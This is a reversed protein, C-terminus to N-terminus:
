FENKYEEETTGNNESRRKILYALGGIGTLSSVVGMGPGLADDDAGTTGSEAQDDEDDDGNTDPVDADDEQTDDGNADDEDEGNTDDEGNEDDDGNTDTDGADDGNEDDTDDDETESDKEDVDVDDVDEEVTATAAALPITAYPDDWFVVKLTIDSDTTFPVIAEDPNITVADAGEDGPELSKVLVGWESTDESYARITLFRDTEIGDSVSYELPLESNLAEPNELYSVHAPSNPLVSITATDLSDGDESGLRVTVEQGQSLSAESELTIPREEMTGPTIDRTDGVTEGDVEVTIVGDAEITEPYLYEISVEETDAEPYQNFRVGSIVTQTTAVFDDLHGWDSPYARLEVTDGLGPTDAPLFTGPPVPYEESLREGPSVDDFGQRGSEIDWTDDIGWRGSGTDPFLRISIDQDFSEDVACEIAVTESNVTPPSGFDIEVDDTTVELMEDTSPPTAEDGVTVRDFIITDFDRRSTSGQLVLEDGQQFPVGEKQEDIEFTTTRSANTDLRELSIRRQWYLAGNDTLLELSVWENATEYSVEITKDGPEPTAEFAAATTVETEDTFLAASLSSEGQPFVGVEISDGVEVPSSLPIDIENIMGTVVKTPDESSETGDVFVRVDLVDSDAEEEPIFVSVSLIESGGTYGESFIIYPIGIQKKNFSVVDRVVDVSSNDHGLGDYVEFRAAAEKDAYVSESYVMRERQMDHGFITVAKERQEDDGFVDSYPLTDDSVQREGEGIYCYQPVERWTEEDFENATLEEIDAIGLQYNVTEGEAQEVPLMAMGNIGGATVSAVRDPHLAAFNNGFNGGQSFGNLIFESPIDLGDDALRERAHDVMEILQQDIRAFRGSEINMTETDLSQTRKNRFEGSRPDKIVPVLFPIKLEESITRGLSHQIRSEGDDLHTEMDDSSSGSNIPEVVLPKDRCNPPVYLYYPFNFGAEEDEEVLEPGIEPSQTGSRDALATKTMGLTAAGAAVTQLVRRRYLSLETSKRM